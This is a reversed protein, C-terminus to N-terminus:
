VARVAVPKRSNAPYRLADDPIRWQDSRFAADFAMELVECAGERSQFVYEDRPKWDNSTAARQLSETVDDLRLYDSGSPRVVVGIRYPVGSSYGAEVAEEMTLFPGVIPGLGGIELAFEAPISDPTRLSGNEIALRSGRMDVAMQVRPPTFGVARIHRGIAPECFDTSDVKRARAEDDLDWYWGSPLVELAIRGHDREARNVRLQMGYLADSAESMRTQASEIMHEHALCVHAMVLTADDGIYRGAEDLEVISTATESAKKRADAGIDMPKMTRRFSSVGVALVMPRHPSQLVAMFPSWDRDTTHNLQRREDVPQTTSRAPSSGAINLHWSSVRGVM